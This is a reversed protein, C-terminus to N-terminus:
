RRWRGTFNKWRRAKKKEGLLMGGLPFPQGAKWKGLIAKRVFEAQKPRREIAEDAQKVIAEALEAKEKEKTKTFRMEIGLHRKM